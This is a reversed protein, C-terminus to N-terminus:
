INYITVVDGIKVEGKLVNGTIVTGRGSITFVDEVVLEFTTTVGINVSNDIMDTVVNQQQMAMEPEVMINKPKLFDFIGM